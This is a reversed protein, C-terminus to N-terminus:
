SKHFTSLYRVMGESLPSLTELESNLIIHLVIVRNQHSMDHHEDSQLPKQTKCDHLIKSLQGYM